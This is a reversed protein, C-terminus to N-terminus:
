SNGFHGIRGDLLGSNTNWTSPDIVCFGKLALEVIDAELQEFPPPIGHAVNQGSIM